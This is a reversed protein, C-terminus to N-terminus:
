LRPYINSKVCEPLLIYATTEIFVKGISAIAIDQEIPNKLCKIRNYHYLYCKGISFQASLYNHVVFGTM